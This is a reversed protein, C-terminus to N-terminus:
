TRKKNKKFTVLETNKEKDIKIWTSRIVLKVLQYENYAYVNV